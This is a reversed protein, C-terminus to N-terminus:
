KLKLRESYTLRRPEGTIIKKIKSPNKVINELRIGMTMYAKIRDPNPDSIIVGIVEDCKSCYGEVATKAIRRFRILDHACDGHKLPPKPPLVM